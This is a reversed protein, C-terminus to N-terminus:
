MSCQALSQEGEAKSSQRAEEEHARPSGAEDPTVPPLGVQEGADEHDRDGNRQNDLRQASQQAPLSAGASRLLRLCRIWVQAIGGGCPSM